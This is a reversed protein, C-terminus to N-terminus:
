ARTWPITRPARSLSPRFSPWRRTRTPSRAATSRGRSIPPIASPPTIRHAPRSQQPIYVRGLADRVRAGITGATIAPHGVSFGLPAPRQRQTPNSFAMLRGTVQLTVPVGDLAQPLGAIGPRELLLLMGARGDTLGTVATGVVGPIALLADTHRRQAEMALRLDPAIVQPPASPGDSAGDSCSNWVALAAGMLVVFAARNLTRVTVM